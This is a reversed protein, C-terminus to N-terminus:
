MKILIFLDTSIEFCVGVSTLIEVMRRYGEAKFNKKILPFKVLRTRTVPTQYVCPINTEALVKYCVIDENALFPERNETYLCM